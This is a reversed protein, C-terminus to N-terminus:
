DHMKDTAISSYRRAVRAATRRPKVVSVTQGCLIRCQERERASAQGGNAVTDRYDFIRRETEAQSVARAERM